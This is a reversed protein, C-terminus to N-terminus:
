KAKKSRMLDYYLLITDSDDYINEKQWPLFDNKEYFRLVNKYADVLLYRCGIAQRENAFKFKIASILWSGYGDKAYNSSMAFRGIKIAPYSKYQKGKHFKEKEIDTVPMTDGSLTFYGIIEDELYLLYTTALLEDQHKRAKRRLFINLNTDESKFKNLQSSSEEDLIKIKLNNTQM